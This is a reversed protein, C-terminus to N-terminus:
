LSDFAISFTDGDNLNGSEFGRLFWRMRQESTGHTFSDEVIYGQAQRQLADDGINKAARMAEDIDGSELFIKGQERFKREMHHAWVGALFDAQLELRVSLKNYESKPLSRRQQHVHDTLSLLKQVHHGVEHALVYAQAFDGPSGHKTELEHFFQPDIYITQNAPLYFPGYRADAKGGPMHTADDYLVMRAPSYRKNLQAPFLEGWIVETDHLVTSLFNDIEKYEAPKKSQLSRSHQTQTSSSGGSLLSMISIKKTVVLFGIIAIPIIMMKGRFIKFLSMILGINMGGGSGGRYYRQGRRNDVNTSRRRGQWKM